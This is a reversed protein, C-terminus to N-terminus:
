RLHPAADTPGGRRGAREKRRRHAQAWQPQEGRLAVARSRVDGSTAVFGQLILTRPLAERGAFQRRHRQGAALVGVQRRRQAGGVRCRIRGVLRRVLLLPLLVGRRRVLLLVLLLRRWLLRRLLWLVPLLLLVWLGVLGRKRRRRADVPAIRLLHIREQAPQVVLAQAAVPLRWFLLLLLLLLLLRTCCLWRQEAPTARCTAPTLECWDGGQGCCNRM